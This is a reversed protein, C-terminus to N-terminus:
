KEPITFNAIVRHVPPPARKEWMQTFIQKVPHMLYTTFDSPPAIDIAAPGSSRSPEKEQTRVRSIVAKENAHLLYLQPDM